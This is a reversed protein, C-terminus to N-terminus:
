SFDEASTLSKKSERKRRCVEVSTSELSNMDCGWSELVRVDWQPRYLHLKGPSTVSGKMKLACASAFLLGYCCVVHSLFAVCCKVL